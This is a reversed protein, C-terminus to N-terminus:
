REARYWRDSAASSSFSIVKRGHRTYVETSLISAHGLMAQTFRIDAGGELMRTAM